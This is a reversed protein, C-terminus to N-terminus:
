PVTPLRTMVMGGGGTCFKVPPMVLPLQCTWNSLRVLQSRCGRACRQSGIRTARLRAWGAVSGSQDKCSVLEGYARCGEVADEGLFGSAMFRPSDDREISWRGDRFEKRSPRWDSEASRVGCEANVCKGEDLEEDGDGDDGDDCGQKRGASEALLTRRAGADLAGVVKM